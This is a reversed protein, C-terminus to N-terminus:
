QDTLVTRLRTTRDQAPREAVAQALAPGAAHVVSLHREARGFASYVWQRTLQGSTEPPLVVVVAPWRRGVAQHATVAWGHRLKGAQAPTLTIRGGDALEM